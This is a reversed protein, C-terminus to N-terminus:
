ASSMGGAEQLDRAVKGPLYGLLTRDDGGFTMHCIVPVGPAAERAAALAEKLEVHDTFTEMLLVDVGAEALATIQEKFAEHAEEKSLRGFPKLRVGLPGISGAIYIDQKGSQAIALRALDVGAQNITAVADQM